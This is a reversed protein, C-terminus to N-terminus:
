RGSYGIRELVGDLEDLSHFRVRLEGKGGKESQLTVVCGLHDSLERELAQWDGPKG